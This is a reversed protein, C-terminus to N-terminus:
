AHTKEIKKSADKYFDRYNLGQFKVTDSFNFPNGQYMSYQCFTDLIKLEECYHELFLFQASENVELFFINGSIDEVFDFVGFVIGLSKMINVCRAKIGGPLQYTDVYMMADLDEKYDITEAESCIKAAICHNGMFIVRLDHKKTIKEQFIHPDNFSINQNLMSTSIESAHFTFTKSGKSWAKPYFSKVIASGEREKIFSRIETSNNSILSVPCQLGVKKAYHLQLGKKRAKLRSPYSNICRNTDSVLYLLSELFAKSEQFYFRHGNEDAFHKLKRYDIRRLWITDESDYEIGDLFQIYSSSNHFSLKHDLVNKQLDIISSIFGMNELALSVIAAHFDNETTLILCKM